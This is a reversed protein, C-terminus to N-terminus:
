PQIPTLCSVETQVVSSPVNFEDVLVVYHAPRATGQICAHSQLYFDYANEYTVGENVVLGCHPNGNRDSNKLPFFRTSHRKLVCILLAKPLEQKNNEHYKARITAQIQPWEDQLIMQFQGESIGDRFIVIHKPYRPRNTPYKDANKKKWLDLREGVMEGFDQIMEQKAEQCRLSASYRNFEAEVSGVVATVSPCKKMSAVGPHSVDAGLIITERTFLEGEYPDHSNRNALTLNTGDLRLNVKHLINVAADPDCKMEHIPFDRKDKLGPRWNPYRVVSTTAIGVDIDAAKKLVAYAAADKSPLIVLVMRVGKDKFFKLATKVGNSTPDRLLHHAATSKDNTCGCRHQHLSCYKQLQQRMQKLFHAREDGNPFGTNSGLELYSWQGGCPESFLKRILKWSGTRVIGQPVHRDRRQGGDPLYELNPPPLYHGFVRLMSRSVRLDFHDEQSSTLV